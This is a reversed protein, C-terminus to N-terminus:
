PKQGERRARISLVIAAIEDEAGERAAPWTEITIQEGVIEVSARFAVTEVERCAAFAGRTITAVMESSTRAARAAFTSVCNNWDIFLQAAQAGRQELSAQGFAGQSILCLGLAVVASRRTM